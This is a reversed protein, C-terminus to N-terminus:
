PTDRKAMMNVLDEIGSEMPVEPTWGLHKRAREINLSRDPWLKGPPAPKQVLVPKQGLKTGAEVCNTAIDKIASPAGGGINLAPPLKKTELALGVARCVDEINVFDIRQEGTGYITLEGGTAAARAFREMAGGLGMDVGIGAGYINAFRLATGGAAMWVEEAAEKLAGYLGGPDPALDESYPGLAARETGYVAVTSAFILRKVGHEKARQCLRATATVNVRVAKKPDAQCKKPGGGGALHVIADVPFIEGPDMALLDGRHHRVSDPFRSLVAENRPGHGFAVVDHHAALRLTLTSGLYGYAGTVLVKM